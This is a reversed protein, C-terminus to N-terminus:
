DNIFINKLRELDKEGRADKLREKLYELEQREKKHENILFLILADIALCLNTIITQLEPNVNIGVIVALFNFFAVYTTPENLRALIWDLLKRWM